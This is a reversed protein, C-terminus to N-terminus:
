VRGFPPGGMKNVHNRLTNVTSTLSRVENQLVKVQKQLEEVNNRDTDAKRNVAGVAKWLAWEPHDSGGSSMGTDRQIQRISSVNSSTLFTSM